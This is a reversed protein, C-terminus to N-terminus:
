LSVQVIRQHDALDGLVKWRSIDDMSDKFYFVSLDSKTSEPTDKHRLLVLSNAKKSSIM